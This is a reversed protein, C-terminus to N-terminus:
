WHTAVPVLVFHNYSGTVRYPESTHSNDELPIEYEDSNPPNYGIIYTKWYYGAQGNFTIYFTDNSVNVFEITSLIYDMDELTHSGTHIGMQEWCRRMIAIDKYEELFMPWICGAYQYDGGFVFTTIMLEPNELPDELVTNFHWQVYFNIDNYIVDAMWTATNELWFGTEWM